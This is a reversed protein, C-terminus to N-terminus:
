SPWKKETRTSLTTDLSVPALEAITPRKAAIEELTDWFEDELSVSTKHGSVAISRKVIRSAKM